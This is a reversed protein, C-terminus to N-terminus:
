FNFKEWFWWWSSLRVSSHCTSVKKNMDFLRKRFSQNANLKWTHEDLRNMFDLWFHTYHLKWRCEGINQDTFHKPRLKLKPSFYIKSEIFYKRKLLFFGKWRVSYSKLSFEGKPERRDGEPKAKPSSFFIRSFNRFKKKKSKESNKKKGYFDKM